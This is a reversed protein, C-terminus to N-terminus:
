RKPERNVASIASLMTFFPIEEQYYSCLSAWLTMHPLTDAHHQKVSKVAALLSIDEVEKLAATAFSASRSIGAGCAVLVHQGRQQQELVFDVGQRLLTPSLVCGDETPLYCTIIQPHDVREALQLIAGIRNAELLARNRTDRYNGISLWPRITNM